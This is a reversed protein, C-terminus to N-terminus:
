RNNLNNDFIRPRKAHFATGAGEPPRDSDRGSSRLLSCFVGADPISGFRKPREITANRLRPHSLTPRRWPVRRTAQKADIPNMGPKSRQRHGIADIRKKKKSDIM